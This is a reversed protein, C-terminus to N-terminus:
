DSEQKRGLFDGLSKVREIFDNKQYLARSRTRLRYNYVTQPACHLFDAIKVSDNIGLRVLAYIRLEMNLLEGEKPVIQKDPKLLSNFDSVFNPYINLFITDFSHYFEKLEEKMDIDSTEMEIEKLQKKVAKLYINRKLEEFKNIYSSCLHFVYGIYEEKVFNAEYLQENKNKLNENLEQLLSNMSNLKNEAESLEEVKQQLKDNIMDVNKRERTVKKNQWIIAMVAILLIFGFICFLVLFVTTRHQQREIKEQYVKNIRDMATAIGFARTRNPYEFAKNLSYHIYNYAREIDGNGDKFLLKALDELSAIESNAIKVDVIASLAMYNEMNAPDGKQEYLRALVYANKADQRQNLQSSDLANKLAEIVSDPKQDTGLIDWAKYWLYEPHSPEIVNMISDKYLRETVYYDNTEGGEYSGLRSFLYIMQGYYEVLQDKSITAPNIEGMVDMASKMLGTAALASAKNIKSHNLWTQNEAGLASNISEDAYHIASDANLTYYSEFLLNDYFYRDSPTKALKRKQKLEAIHTLQQMMYENSNKLMSDLTAINASHTMQKESCASNLLFAVVFTINFAVKSM